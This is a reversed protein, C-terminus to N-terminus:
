AAVLNITAAGLSSGIRTVGVLGFLYPAQQSGAPPSHGPSSEFPLSRFRHASPVVNGTISGLNNSGVGTRDREVDRELDEDDFRSVVDGDHDGLRDGTALVRENRAHVLCRLLEAHGPRVEGIDVAKRVLALDGRGAIQGLKGAGNDDLKGLM